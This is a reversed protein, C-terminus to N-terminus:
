ALRPILPAPQGRAHLLKVVRKANVVLAALLVQGHMKLRGWYRARTLGHWRKLEANKQEVKYRHRHQAQRWQRGAEGALLKPRYFDGIFVRRRIESPALCQRRRPCAGCVSASFYYLTGNEQRIAGISAHAEVCRVQDRAADYEFGDIVRALRQRAFCPILAAARVGAATGAKGYQGDGIIVAGEELVMRERELVGAVHVAENQNGPLTEVDSILESDPDLSLHVKYGVFFKTDTKAGWRADPDVFSLVKAANGGLVQAVAECAAQVEREPRGVLQALLARTLREEQALQRAAEGPERPRLPMPTLYEPALRAAEEPAVRQIQRLVHARGQRLLGALSPVAINAVTHTADWVRRTRGLLHIAAVRERFTAWVQELGEHGIRDRFRVLTTDDPVPQDLPIGVFARYLLNYGVAQAVERDSLAAYTELFLMKFLLSPPYAPRGVEEAYYPGLEADVFAFDIARAIHMLEHDEPIVGATYLDAFSPQRRPEDRRLM